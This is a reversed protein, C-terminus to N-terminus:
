FGASGRITFLMIWRAGKQNRSMRAGREFSYRGNCPAKRIQGIYYILNECGIKRWVHEFPIHCARYMYGLIM